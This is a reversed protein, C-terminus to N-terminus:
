GGGVAHVIEVRDNECLQRTAHESRPLIEENLEVAVRKGELGQAQLLQLVSMGATLTKTEGNLIIEM